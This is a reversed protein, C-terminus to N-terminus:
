EHLTRSPPLGYVARYRRAFRSSTFGWRAAITAITQGDGATAARLDEHARDLRVRRLYAMPTTDLHRRFALQLARPTVYAARAIDALTLDIDPNAEIYSTARRLTDPHADHRDGATPTTVATNPFTDLLRAALYQSATSVVLPSRPGPGAMVSDRVEAVSRQLTLAAQRSIPRHDLMRVPEADKVASSAVQDLLAPDIMLQRMRASQVIGRYPLGPRCILFLDGPGFTEEREEGVRYISNKVVNSLVLYPQPEANYGLDFSYEFEDFAVQPSMVRRTIHTHTREGAAGLHMRSYLNSVFAEVEAVDHSDFTVPEM